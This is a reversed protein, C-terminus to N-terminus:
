QAPNGIKKKLAAVIDPKKDPCDDGLIAKAEAKFQFFKMTDASALLRRAEGTPTLPAETWETWEPKVSYTESTGSESNEVFKPEKFLHPYNMRAIGEPDGSGDATEEQIAEEATQPPTYTVWSDNKGRVLPGPGDVRKGLLDELKADDPVPGRLDVAGYPHESLGDWNVVGVIKTGEVSVYRM